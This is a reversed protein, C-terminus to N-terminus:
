IHTYTYVYCQLNIGANELFRIRGGALCSISVVSEESLITDVWMTDFGLLGYDLYM